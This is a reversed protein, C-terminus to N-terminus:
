RDIEVRIFKGASSYYLDYGPIDIEYGGIEKEIKYPQQSPYRKAYTILCAGGSDGAMYVHSSDGGDAALREKIYDMAMFVDALQDYILCDPILRYEISYVLFGKKCLLACFYRNFEKNGIILGGGHVNIIVPLVKEQSDEPRYIDLLHAKIGDDAYAIDTSCRVGEPFTLGADRGACSDEFDKRQRYFQKTLINGM